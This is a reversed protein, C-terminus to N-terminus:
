GMGVDAAPKLSNPPLHEIYRQLDPSAQLTLTLRKREDLKNWGIRQSWSHRRRHHQQSSLAYIAPPQPKARSTKIDLQARSTQCCQAFLQRLKQPLLAPAHPEFLRHASLKLKASIWRLRRVPRRKPAATHDDAVAPVAM